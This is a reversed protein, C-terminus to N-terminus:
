DERKKHKGRVHTRTSTGCSPCWKTDCKLLTSCLDGNGTVATCIKDEFIVSDVKWCCNPCFNHSELLFDYCEICPAKKVITTVRVQTGCISCFKAGDAIEAGCSEKTCKM